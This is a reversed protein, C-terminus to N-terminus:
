KEFSDLALISELEDVEFAKNATTLDAHAKILKRVQKSLKIPVRKDALKLRLQIEMSANILGELTDILTYISKTELELTRKEM